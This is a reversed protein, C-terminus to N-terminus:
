EGQVFEIESGLNNFRLNSYYFKPDFIKQLERWTANAPGTIVHYLTTNDHDRNYTVLYKKM